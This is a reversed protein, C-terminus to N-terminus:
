FKKQSASRDLRCRKQLNSTFIGPKPLFTGNRATQRCFAQDLNFDVTCYNSVSALPFFAVVYM